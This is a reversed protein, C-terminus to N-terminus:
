RSAARRRGTSRSRSLRAPREDYLRDGASLCGSVPVTVTLFTVTRGAGAGINGAKALGSAYNSFCATVAEGLTANEAEYTTASPMESRGDAGIVIRDPPYSASNGFQIANDGAKLCVPV